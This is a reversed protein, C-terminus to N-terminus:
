WKGLGRLERARRIDEQIDGPGVRFRGAVKAVPDEAAEVRVASGEIKWVIRDSPGVGLRERVEAPVTTQNKSTLKSIAM